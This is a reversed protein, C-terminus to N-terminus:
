AARRHEPRATHRMPSRTPAAGAAVCDCAQEVEPEREPAGARTAMRTRSGPRTGRRRGTWASAAVIVLIMAIVFLSRVVVGLHYVNMQMEGGFLNINM